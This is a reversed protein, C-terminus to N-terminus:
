APSLGADIGRERRRPYKRRGDAKRGKPRFCKIVQILLKAGFYLAGIQTLHNGGLPLTPLDVVLEDLLVLVGGFAMAARMILSTM